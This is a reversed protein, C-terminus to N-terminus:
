GEAGNQDQSNFNIVFYNISFLYWPVLNYNGMRPNNPGAVLPNKTIGPVDPLPIYGVTVKGGVLANFEATDSTFPLEVFESLSPKVPGSYSPNPKFAAYGTSNFAVLHWPGDVVQWLPNTAYSSLSNNPAKPNAPDYGSEKELFTYVNACSKAAASVPVVGAKASQHVVVQQYSATGCLESGSKAGKSTVDWAMPLPTIQALENYTYWYPNVAATLTFVVTTANPATISKVDDPITGSAYDFWNLKEVKMINMWFVVDQATVSEGNSWKYPKLTVTAVTNGNSFVPTNAISLATNLTASAGNGFFFLPRYMLFQFQSLNNVSSFNFNMFPFIFNPTAQPPEAFYATGGQVKSAHPASKTSASSAALGLGLAVSTAAVVAVAGRLAASRTSIRNLQGRRTVLLRFPCRQGNAGM